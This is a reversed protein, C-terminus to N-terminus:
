YLSPVARRATQPPDLITTIPVYERIGKLYKDLEAQTRQAKIKEGIALQVEEFPQRRAPLREVVRVIYYGRWDELIPSLGNPPLGAIAKEVVEPLAISKDPWDRITGDSGSSGDSGAQAVTAFDEGAMVRNGMAAIAAFAEQRSPQRTFAVKLLQWRTCAPKDFEALHDRYYATMQDYTVEDDFKLQQRIWQQALAREMFARRERELSSGRRRLEADLDRWSEVSAQKLLRKIEHEDFQKTLQKEVNPFNEKPIKRKADYFGLKTEIQQKLLGDIATRRMQQDPTLRDGSLRGAAAEAIGARIEQLWRTRETQLQRWLADVDGEHGSDALRKRQTEFQMKVARETNEEAASLLDSALIAEAGVTGVIMACDLAELAAASAPARPAAPAGPPAAAPSPAYISSPANIPPYAPALGPVNAVRPTEGPPQPTPGGPWSSPRTAPAPNIPPGPLNRGGTYAPLSRVAPPPDAADPRPWPSSEQARGSGGTLGAALALALILATPTRRLPM